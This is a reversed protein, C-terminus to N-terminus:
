CPVRLSSWDACLELELQLTASEGAENVVTLQISTTLVSNQDPQDGLRGPLYGKWIENQRDVYTLESDAITLRPIGGEADASLALSVSQGCGSTVSVHAPQDTGCASQEPINFGLREHTDGLMVTMGLRTSPCDCLDEPAPPVPELSVPDVHIPPQGGGADSGAAGGV